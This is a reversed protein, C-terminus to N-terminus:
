SNSYLQRVGATGGLPWDPHAAAEFPRLPGALYAELERLATALAVAGWPESEISPWDCVMWRLLSLQRAALAHSFQEDLDAPLSRVAAYGNLFGEAMAPYSRRHDHNGVSPCRLYVVSSAIDLAYAGIGCDDFDIAAAVGRRYLVNWQHLDGHVLGCQGPVKEIQSLAADIREGAELVLDAADESLWGKRLGEEAVADAYGAPMSRRTGSEVVFAQSHRHLEGQFRGLAMLHRPTLQRDCLRGEIWKVMMIVVRSSDDLDFEPLWEGHLTPMPTPVCLDTEASLAHLWRVSARLRALFEHDIPIIRMLLKPGDLGDIRFLTSSLHDVLRLRAAEPRLGFLSLAQRGLVRRARILGDSAQPQDEM